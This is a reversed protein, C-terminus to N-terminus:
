QQGGSLTRPRARAYEAVGMDTLLDLALRRAQRAPMGQCRPGFAVNEVVTLHPFLLFDQFVFGVPRREAPVSLLDVGDVRLGVIAGAMAMRHDAYAHWMGARLPTATIVLGDPTEACDGGLRNIEASLAALRDTEHRRLHAIGTLRPVSGPTALAALAAVAVADRFAKVDGVVHDSPMLLVLGDPDDELVKLAAVAAAPATNRGAPELIIRAGAIGVSRLQEAILFRYEQNSIVLPPAFGDGQARAATDQIMTASGALPLLQKPLAKRSLPWLRSGAGGSLIVPTILGNKMAM